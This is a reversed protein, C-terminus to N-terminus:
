TNSFSSFPSRNQKAFSIFWDSCVADLLSSAAHTADPAAEPMKCGDTGLIIREPCGALRGATCDGPKDGFLISSSLDLALDAAAQLLMGPKPKRCNCDIRYRPLAKEPHHPCFYVGAVPAGARAMEAKMWETLALFDAETYYGRGIGSQNTVVVLLFGAEALRRAGELAGPVWQFAARTHVYAFDRNLVGDRDLFAARRRLDAEPM